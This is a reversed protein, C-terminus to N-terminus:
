SATSHQQGAPIHKSTGPIHVYRSAFGLAVRQMCDGNALRHIGGREDIVQLEELTAHVEAEERRITRHM